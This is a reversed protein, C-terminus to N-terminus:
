SRKLRAAAPAASTKRAAASRRCLGSAGEANSTEREGCPGDPPPRGEVGKASGPAGALPPVVAQGAQAGATRGSPQPNGGRDFNDYISATLIVRRSGILFSKIRGEEEVKYHQTAGMDNLMQQSVPREVTQRNDNGKQERLHKVIARGTPSVATLDDTAPTNRSSHSM